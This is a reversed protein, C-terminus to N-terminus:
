APVHGTPLAVTFTSGRGPESWVELRGGLREIMKKAIPLGMGTGPHHARTHLRQFVHFIQDLYITEIGIGNDAVDIMAWGNEVRGTVRVTAPREPSRYEVANGILVIFVETLRHMDAMVSPLDHSHVTAGSVNIRNSLRACAANLADGASVPATPLPLRNEALYIQVDRLLQKMRKASGVVEHLWERGQDGLKDSFDREVLQSYSAISRLPEQLDHAVAYAFNEVEENAAALARTRAEVLSELRARRRLLDYTVALLIVGFLVLAARLAPTEPASLVTADWGAPPVIALECYGEPLEIRMSVPDRGFVSQDGGVPNGATTRVGWAYGELSQGLDALVPDLSFVMGVAGWPNDGDYVAHRAILGLGGQILTVPEHVAMGRVAIARRVADAFGVRKDALLDNGIVKRNGPDDPYVMQVVFRPCISINRIGAVSGYIAQAFMPFETALEKPDHEHLKVAVFAALGRVLALRQNLSNALTGSASVALVSAQSRVRGLRYDGHVGDIWTAFAAWAAALVAVVAVPRINRYVSSSSM